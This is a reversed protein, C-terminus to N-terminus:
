VLELNFIRVEKEAHDAHWTVLFQDDVLMVEVVFGRADTEQYDGTTFPSAALRRFVDLLRDRSRRPLGNLAECSARNLAYGYGLSM